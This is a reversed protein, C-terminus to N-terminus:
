VGRLCVGERGGRRKCDVGDAIDVRDGIGDVNQGRGIGGELRQNPLQASVDQIVGRQQGAHQAHV